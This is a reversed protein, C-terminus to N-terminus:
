KPNSRTIKERIFGTLRYKLATDEPLYAAGRILHLCNPSGCFCSFPQAMDWETSPYFFVLEDGPQIDALAILQFTGTDFFVNPSCSHNTYQLFDPLLTIHTQDGTQITLYSAEAFTNEAEFACVTEGADFFANALLSKQGTISNLMISAFGHKSVLQYASTVETIM